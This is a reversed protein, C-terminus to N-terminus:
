PYVVLLDGFLALGLGRRGDGADGLPLHTEGSADLQGGCSVRQDSVKRLLWILWVVAVGEM